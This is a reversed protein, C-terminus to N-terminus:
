VLLSIKFQCFLVHQLYLYKKLYNEKLKLREESKRDNERRPRYIPSRYTLTDDDDDDCSGSVGATADLDTV